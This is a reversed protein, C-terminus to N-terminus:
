CLVRGDSPIPHHCHLCRCDLVWFFPPPATGGRKASLQFVKEGHSFLDRVLYIVFDGCIERPPDVIPAESVAPDYARATAALDSESFSLTAGHSDTHTGARFIEIPNM